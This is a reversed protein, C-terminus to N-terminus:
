EYRLSQVPDTFSAKITLFSVTFLTIGLSLVGSLIFTTLSINVQYAFNNLWQNLLFWAAPWAILNALLNLRIYDMCLLLVIRSASSGLIKRVGIEKTRKEVSFSVLGFLGICAIFCAIVTFYKLSTGVTEVTTYLQDFEENLFNYRFPMNPSTKRWTNELFEITGVVNEPRIRVFIYNVGPNLFLILPRIPTTAISAMHFDKTVGIITGKYNEGIAISQDLASEGELLQEFQENVVLHGKETGFDRSFSRGKIVDIGLTEIFGFEVSTISIPIDRDIRNGKFYIADTPSAFWTLHTFSAAISEISPNQGIEERFRSYILSNDSNSIGLSISVVHEDKFGLDKNKLFHIQHFVILLVIILTMSISMQILVLSKRFVSRKQICSSSGKLVAAPQFRSLFFAPYSGSILGASLTIGLTLLILRWDFFYTLTLNLDTMSNFLPLILKLLVPSLVLAVLALFVAEILFQIVLSKKAAGVTKRVGIEKARHESRATSLNMFNICAILLVLFGIFSYIYVYQLPGGGESPEFNSYLHIRTLPQLFLEINTEPDYNKIFGSIKDEFEQIDVNSGLLLYTPGMSFDWADNKWGLKRVIDYPVLMDFQLHSNQPTDKFVGSVIFDFRNEMNLTKGIPDENGFYKNATSQSIVISLPDKLTQSRDGKVVLFSFIELFSPDVTLVDTEYYVKDEYKFVREGTWAVRATEEVESFNTKLVDALLGPTRFGYETYDPFLRKENVRYITSANRHFRDFSLENLVWLSILLFATIGLLLGSINILSFVKQKRLNRFSILIYNKLMALSWYLSLELESLILRLIQKFFWAKTYLNGKQDLKYRYLEEFDGLKEPINERHIFSIILWEGWKPLLNIKKEM